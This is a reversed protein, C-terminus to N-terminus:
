FHRLCLPAMSACTCWPSGATDQLSGTTTEAGANESVALLYCATTHGASDCTMISSTHRPPYLVPPLCPLLVTFRGGALWDAALWQLTIVPHPAEATAFPLLHRM